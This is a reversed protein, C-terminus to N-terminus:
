EGLAGRRTARSLHLAPSCVAKPKRLGIKHGDRLECTVFRLAWRDLRDDGNLRAVVLAAYPANWLGQCLNFLEVHNQREPTLVGEFCVRRVHASGFRRFADIPM